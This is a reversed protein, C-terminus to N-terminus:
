EYRLFYHGIQGLRLYGADAPVKRLADEFPAFLYAGEHRAVAQHVFASILQVFNDSQRAHVQYYIVGVVRQYDFHGAYLRGPHLDVEDVVVVEELALAEKGVALAVFIGVVVHAGDKECAAHELNEAAAIACKITEYNITNMAAVGYHHETAHQLLENVKVLSM